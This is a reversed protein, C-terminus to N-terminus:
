DPRRERILFVDTLQDLFVSNGKKGWWQYLETGTFRILHLDRIDRNKPMQNYAWRELEPARETPADDPSEYQDCYESLTMGQGKEGM